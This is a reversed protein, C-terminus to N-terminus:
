RNVLEAFLALYAAASVSWSFERTMGARQMQRWAKPEHWYCQMARLVAGRLAAATPSDFIFGTANGDRRTEPTLNTVTDVLGGTRRVIPVTGYAQSYMQNLGCPEFRSPMLFMDAGAELLHSVRESFAIRVAVRGPHRQACARLAVELEPQGRGLLVLQAGADVIDDVIAAVLDIGKQADLRAVVGCLPTDPLWELGMEHLLARKCRYKGMLNRARFTHPLLPDTEPNWIRTDIGNLIGRLEAARGRLMRDFGCGYEPQQIERAYTPSVTTLADAHLLAAKMCNVDGFHEVYVPSFYQAPLGLEGFENAPAIGQYALNHITFVTAVNRFRRDKAALVNLYLPTLATHWDNLHLVDPVWGDAVCAHLAAQQFVTFRRLNDAYDTGNEGYVGGRGFLEDYRLFYLHAGSPTVHHYLGIHYRQGAHDFAVFRATDWALDLQQAALSYYPVYVRVDHGALAFEAPLAASVDALGGAKVFPALEASLLAIRM